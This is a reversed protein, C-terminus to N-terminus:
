SSIPKADAPSNLNIIRMNDADGTDLVHPEGAFTKGTSQLWSYTYRETIICRVVGACTTTSNEEAITNDRGIQGRVVVFTYHTVGKFGRLYSFQSNIMNTDYTLNMSVNVKHKHTGNPAMIVSKKSKIRYFDNFLQSDTPLAGLNYAAPAADATVNQCLMGNTWAEVPTDIGYVSTGEPNAVIDHKACVDYIDVIVQFSNSNQLEMDAVLGHLHFKVPQTGLLVGPIPEPQPVYSSLKRIDSSSFWQGMTQPQQRGLLFEVEYPNNTLWTNKSGLASVNRQKRFPRSASFSSFSVYGAGGQIPRALPSRRVVRRVVRRRVVPKKRAAAAKRAAFTGKPVVKFKRKHYENGRLPM